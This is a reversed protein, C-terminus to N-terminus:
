MQMRQEPTISRQNKIEFYKVIIGGNPLPMGAESHKKRSM